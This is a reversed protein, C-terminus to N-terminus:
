PRESLQAVSVLQLRDDIIRESVRHLAPVRGDRWLGAIARCSSRRQGVEQMRATTRCKLCVHWGHCNALLREQMAPM